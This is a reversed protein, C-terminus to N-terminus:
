LTINYKDQLFHRMKEKDDGCAKKIEYVKADVLTRYWWGQLFDWLFGEKGDLFGLKIIYRYVFYGFARWFLPMRAYRAKQTRKKEVERGYDQPLSDMNTLHYEADLLLAAERTAYGNHKDIFLGIPMRNDDVFQNKMDITEGSLVSLHEDMLRKEYRAKGKRFIRIIRINNVIGHHLIKGCFARARSLSLASVSEPIVPLKELLEEILGPLLYEDADLRLIWETTIPLNDLAWNFQEAQNGPWEHEIVEAGLEKAIQATRDISFCDVVYVKSAFQKVNELCRRIHIEENYTLIIVSLDLM